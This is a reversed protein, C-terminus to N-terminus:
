APSRPRWEMLWCNEWKGEHLEHAPLLKLKKFGCAEYCRIARPNGAHPDLLVAEAGERRVLFETLMAIFTRGLKKNWYDPEGIFQDMAFAKKGSYPYGYERFGEENLPYVQVYGVPRGKYEVVCRRMGPEDEPAGYFDERIRGMTFVQDRGEYWELVAPDTMWKLLAPADDERLPRLSVPGNTLFISNEM